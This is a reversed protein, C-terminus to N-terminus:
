SNSNQFEYTETVMKRKGNKGMKEKLQFSKLIKM